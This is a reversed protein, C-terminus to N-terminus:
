GPPFIRAEPGLKVFKRRYQKGANSLIVVYIQEPLQIAELVADLLEADKAQTRPKWWPTRPVVGFVFMPSSQLHKLAKRAAWVERIEGFKGFSERLDALRESALEHPLFGDRLSVDMREEQALELTDAAGFGREEWRRAASEDGQERLFAALVQCGPFEYGADAEISLEVLPVGAPDDKEELMWTGASFLAGAHNPDRELIGHMMELAAEEGHLEATLQAQTWADDLSLQGKQALRDQIQELQARHGDALAGSEKWFDRSAEMWAADLKERLTDREAGLYFAAAPQGHQARLRGVLAEADHQLNGTFEFGAAALMERLSPHTEDVPTTEALSKRLARVADNQPENEDFLQRKARELRRILQSVADNPPPDGRNAAQTLERGQEALVTRDFLATRAKSSITGAAGALRVAMRDADFEQERMLAMTFAEFYPAYRRAFWGLLLALMWSQGRELLSLWIERLHCTRTVLQSHRRSIHALEHALIARMEEVSMAEMLPLGLILDNRFPGFFGFLRTQAAGANLEDSLIVRHIRNVRLDRCLRDLEEFLRPFTLRKLRLGDPRIVPKWCTWLTHLTTWGFLATLLWFGTKQERIALVLFVAFLGLIIALVLGLYVYGAIALWVVKRRYARPRDRAEAELRRVLHHYQRSKVPFDPNVLCWVRSFEM